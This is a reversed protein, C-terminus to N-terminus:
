PAKRLQRVEADTPQFKAGDQYQYNVMVGKGDKIAIRGVYAGM